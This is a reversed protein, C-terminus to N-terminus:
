SFRHRWRRSSGTGDPVPLNDGLCASPSECDGFNWECAPIQGTPHLFYEQLLLELQEKAFDVDVTSLAMAHFALAWAAYWPYEWKDPVSIINENVM